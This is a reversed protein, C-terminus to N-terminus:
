GALDFLNTAELDLVELWDANFLQWRWRMIGLTPQSSSRRTEIVTVRLRLHDGPRVPHPWKLYALGPSAFVESGDLAAQVALRMAIGCTHWGSAILGGFRGNGAARADTHFWQPDWASAFEVLEREDVIYPGAEIVQGTSFEAFRM